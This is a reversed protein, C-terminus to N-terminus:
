RRRRLGALGAFGLLAAAGPTPIGQIEFATDFGTFQQYGNGDFFDAAIVGNAAGSSWIFADDFAAIADGGISLWYRVGGQLNVANFKVEFEYEFGGASNSNGTPTININAIGINMDGTISGGPIGGADNYINVVFSGFNTLDPFVYNESSGWWRVGNVPSAGGLVFDDAIRQSYFQGAVGDSFLGDPSVPLQSYIKPGARDINAYNAEHKTNTVRLADWTGIPTSATAAGAVACLGVVSIIRM